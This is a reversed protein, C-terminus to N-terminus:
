KMNNLMDIYNTVLLEATGKAFNSIDTSYGGNDFALSSPIYGNDM